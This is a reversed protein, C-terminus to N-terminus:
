RRLVAAYVDSYQSGVTQISDYVASTTHAVLGAPAGTYLFTTALWHRGSSRLAAAYISGSEAPSPQGPLALRPLTAWSIAGGALQFQAIGGGRLTATRTSGCRGLGLRGSPGLSAGFPPSYGFPAFTSTQQPYADPQRVRRLPACLPRLLHPADLDVASRAASAPQAGDTLQAGTHWNLYLTLDVHLGSFPSSLWQSGVEDFSPYEGGTGPLIQNSGVAVHLTGGDIEEVAHLVRAYNSTAPTPCDITVLGGSPPALAPSLCGPPACAYLLEGSGIGVLGGACGAPDPRDSTTATVTDIVRTTGEVPEFAAYRAGDTIMPTFAHGYLLHMAVIPSASAPSACLLGGGALGLGASALGVLVSSRGRLRRLRSVRSPRAPRRFRNM